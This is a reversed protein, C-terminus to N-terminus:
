VKRTSYEQSMYWIHKILWFPQGSKPLASFASHFLKRSNALDNYCVQKWVKMIDCKGHAKKRWDKRNEATKNATEQPYGYSSWRQVKAYLTCLLRGKRIESVNHWIHWASNKREIKNCGWYILIGIRYEYTKNYVINYSYKGSNNMLTNNSYTSNNYM